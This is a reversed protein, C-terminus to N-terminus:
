LEIFISGFPLLGGAIILFAPEMFWKKEPIPKPVPNVRCPFNSVGFLNRGLVTGVLNLPIVVFFIIAAIALMTVFPISRSTHYYIAVLNVLFTCCCIMFPMLTAGMLFQRIWRKCVSCFFRTGRTALLSFQNQLLRIVVVPKTDSYEWKGLHVGGDGVTRHYAGFMLKRKKVGSPSM